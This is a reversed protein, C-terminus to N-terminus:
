SYVSILVNISLPETLVNGVGNRLILHLMKHFYITGVALAM